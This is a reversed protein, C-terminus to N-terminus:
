SGSSGQSLQVQDAPPTLLLHGFVQVERPAGDFTMPLTGRQTIQDESVWVAGSEPPAALLPGLAAARKFTVAYIELFYHTLAGTQGSRQTLSEQEVTWLYDWQVDNLTLAPILKAEDVLEERLERFPSRERDQGAYFWDRFAAVARHPMTMRLDLSAPNEPVAGFRALLGIDTLSLAGGLPALRYVGKARLNHNLLLLYKKAHEIRCLCGCSVRIWQDRAPAENM